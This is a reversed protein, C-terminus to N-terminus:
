PGMYRKDIDIGPFAGLFTLRESMNKSSLNLLVRKPLLITSNVDHKNNTNNMLM